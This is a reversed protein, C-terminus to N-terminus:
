DPEWRFRGLDIRGSASFEVGEKELRRRQRDAGPRESIRGAANVVRHWPLQTRPPLEAM